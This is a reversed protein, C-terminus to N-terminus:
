LNLYIYVKGICLHFGHVRQIDMKGRAECKRAVTRREKMEVRKGGQERGVGEGRWGGEGKGGVRGGRERWEGEGRGGSERWEGEEGERIRAGEGVSVGLPQHEEQLLCSLLPQM